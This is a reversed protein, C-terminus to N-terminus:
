ETVSTSSARRTMTFPFQPVQTFATVNSTLNNIFGIYQMETTGFLEGGEQALGENATVTASNTGNLVATAITYDGAMYTLSNGSTKTAYFYLSYSVGDVYRDGAYSSTFVMNGSMADFSAQVGPLEVGNLGNQYGYIIYAKDPVLYSITIDYSIPQDVGEGDEYTGSIRWDGLWRGYGESYQVEEPTFPESAAYLGTAKFNEDVGIALGVYEGEDGTELIYAATTYYVYESRDVIWGAEEQEAFYAEREAIVEEACAAIGKAQYDAAPVVVAFYGEENGYSTVQIVDGYGSNDSAAQKGQYTVIWDPNPEYIVSGEVTNFYVSAPTGYVNYDEDLGCVVLRYMASSQLGTCKVSASSGSTLVESPAAGSEKLAAVANEIAMPEGQTFDRYCFAYYTVDETGNHSVLATVDNAGVTEIRVDFTLSDRDAVAAEEQCGALLVAGAALAALATERYKIKM